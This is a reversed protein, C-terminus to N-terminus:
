GGLDLLFRRLQFRLRVETPALLDLGFLGGIVGTHIHGLTLHGGDLTRHHFPILGILRVILPTPAFHGFGTSFALGFLRLLWRFASVMLGEYLQLAVALLFVLLINVLLLGTLFFPLVTVVHTVRWGLVNGCDVVM